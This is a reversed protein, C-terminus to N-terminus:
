IHDVSEFGNIIISIDANTAGGLKLRTEWLRGKYIRLPTNFSVHTNSPISLLGMWRTEDDTEDIIEVSLPIEQIAIETTLDTNVVVSVDTIYLSYTASQTKSAPTDETWDATVVGHAFTLAAAALDSTKRTPLIVERLVGEGTVLATDTGDTIKSFVARGVTDGANMHNGSNDTPKVEGVLSSGAGLILKGNSDTKLLRPIANSDEANIPM